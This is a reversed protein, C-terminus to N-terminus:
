RPWYGRYAEPDNAFGRRVSEIDMETFFSPFVLEEFRVSV